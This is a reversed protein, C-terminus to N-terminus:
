IFTLNVHTTHLVVRFLCHYLLHANWIRQEDDLIKKM